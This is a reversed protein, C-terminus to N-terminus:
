TINYEERTYDRTNLARTPSWSTATARDDPALWYWTSGYKRYNLPWRLKFAV